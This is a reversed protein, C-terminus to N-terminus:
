PGAQRGAAEPSLGRCLHESFQEKRCTDSAGLEETHDERRLVLRAKLSAKGLPAVLCCSLRKDGRRGPGQGAAVTAEGGGLLATLQSTPTPLIRRSREQSPHQSALCPTDGPGKEAWRRAERSKTCPAGTGDGLDARCQSGRNDNSLGRLRLAALVCCRLAAPRSRETGLRVYTLPPLRGTGGRDAGARKLLSQHRDEGRPRRGWPRSTDAIVTGTLPGLSGRRHRPKPLPWVGTGDRERFLHM